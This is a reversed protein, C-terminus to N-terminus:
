IQAECKEDLLEKAHNISTKTISKGSLLRALEGVREEKKLTNLDTEQGKLGSSKEILFHHDGLAAVQPLHTITIVQQGCSLRKLKQGVMGATLGSVGSDIEDFLYTRPAEQNELSSKLALLIRSLEGGSAAQKITREQLNKRGHSLWFELSEKGFELNDTAKFKVKLKLDKMNLEKLHSTVENEFDKKHKKRSLSLEELLPNLNEMVADIESKLELKREDYLELDERQRLLDKFIQSLGSADTNYKRFLHNYTKLRDKIEDFSLDVGSQTSLTLSKTLDLAEECSDVAQNLSELIDSNPNVKEHENILTYLQSLISDSANKISSNTLHIAQKFNEEKLRNEKLVKLSEFDASDPKFNELESLQFNVFDLKQLRDSEKSELENLSKKHEKLLFNLKSIEFRLEKHKCYGDFLDRQYSTEQLNKNDHQNTLEILPESSGSLDILPSVISKLENLSALSGNIYTKSRGKPSLIRRVLLTNGEEASYSLDNLRKKIDVRSHVVFLGEVTADESFKGTLNQHAKAGMLIQLSRLLLSKGAGTEGTIVNLGKDFHVSLDKILAFNKVRLETLM